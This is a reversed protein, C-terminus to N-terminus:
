FHLEELSIDHKVYEVAKDFNHLLGGAQMKQNHSKLVSYIQKYAAYEINLLHEKASAL